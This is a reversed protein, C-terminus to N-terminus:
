IGYEPLFMKQGRISQYSIYLIISNINISIRFDVRFDKVVFIRVRSAIFCGADLLTFIDIHVGPPTVLFYISCMIYSIVCTIYMYESNSRLSIVRLRGAIILKRSRLTTDNLVYMVM